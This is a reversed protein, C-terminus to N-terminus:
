CIQQLVVSRIHRPDGDARQISFVARQDAERVCGPTNRARGPVPKFDRSVPRLFNRLILFRVPRFVAGQAKEPIRFFGAPFAKGNVRNQIFARVGVSFLFPIRDAQHRLQRDVAHVFLSGTVGEPDADDHQRKRQQNGKGRAPMYFPGHSGRDFGDRFGGRGIGPILHVANVARVMERRDPDMRPVLQFVQGADHGTHFPIQRFM